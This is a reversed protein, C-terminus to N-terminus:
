SGIRGIGLAMSQHFQWASACMSALDRQPYWGLKKHAHEFSTYLAESDGARRPVFQHPIEISNVKEFCKMLELVSAGRSTGINFVHFGLTSALFNIADVHAQALDEIHIYDRIATGDPTAYDHGYIDLRPRSQSAVQCLIPMLNTPTGKPNEGIRASAHAGVPNFYRLVVASSDAHEQCWTQLMQESELKTQAYPSQPDLPAEETIPLSDPRGYISASGSFIIKKVECAHMARLLSRLGGLNVSRYRDPMAISESISKLGACHLVIDAQEKQLSRELTKEDGIDAHYFTLSGRVIEQIRDVVRADSNHLNDYLAVHYGEEAFRVACHSGIYGTGGTIFIKVGNGYNHHSNLLTPVRSVCRFLTMSRVDNNIKVNPEVGFSM